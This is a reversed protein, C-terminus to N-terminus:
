NNSTINENNCERKIPKVQHYQSLANQQHYQLLVNLRKEKGGKFIIDPNIQYIGYRTQRMFDSEQLTRFTRSVTQISINLDKAVERQTKLFMNDSNLNEMLYNVIKIKKNGVLNLAQVIHGLWIKHFNADREEISIVQMKELEGTDRDIYIKTGIIKTKRRTTINKKKIM